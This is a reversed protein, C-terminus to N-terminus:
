AHTFGRQLKSAQGVASFRIVIKLNKQERNWWNSGETKKGMISESVMYANSNTTIKVGEYHTM